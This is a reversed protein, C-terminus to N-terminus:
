YVPPEGPPRTKFRRHVWLYQAPFRRVQQEIYANMRETDAQADDSPWGQLPPQMEVRWGQAGPLMVVVVPQVVMGLSHALRSPAQLTSAPIGFFPAFIADRTAFDMDPLNFFAAGERVHRVIPRIGARRPYGEARGFRLRGAKVIRELYANKQRQYITVGAREQLLLLATAAVELGVFHPTLWMWPRGDRAAAHIDGEVQILRKLREPRGWWLIGRELLSRGLLAFHERVIEERAPPALEPFCLEINRRAVQRRSWGFRYLLAGLGRGLRVQWGFPLGQTARLALVFLRAGLDLRAM